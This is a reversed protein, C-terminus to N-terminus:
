PFSKPSNRYQYARRNTESNVASYWRGTRWTCVGAADICRGGEFGGVTTGCTHIHWLSLTNQTHPHMHAYTYTHTHTHAYTHKHTHTHTHTHTYTHTHSLSISLALCLSVTHARTYTCNPTHAHARTRTHVFLLRCAQTPLFSFM